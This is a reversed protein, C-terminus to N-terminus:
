VASVSTTSLYVDEQQALTHLETQTHAVHTQTHARTYLSVEEHDVFRERVGWVCVCVCVVVVVVRCFIYLRCKASFELCVCVCVCM